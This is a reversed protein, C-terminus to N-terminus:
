PRRKTAARSPMRGSILGVRAEMRTGQGERLRSRGEGEPRKEDPCHGPKKYASAYNPDLRIATTFDTIANDWDCKAAYAGGRDNYALADKPDLRIAETCDAIARDPEGTKCCAIGRNHYAMSNKPNLRVAESFDDIGQSYHKLSLRANGRRTYAMERQPYLPPAVRLSESFESEAKQWDRAKYAAVGPGLHGVAQSWRQLYLYALLGIIAVACTLLLRWPIRKM